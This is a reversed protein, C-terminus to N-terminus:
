DEALLRPDFFVRLSAVRGQKVQYWAVTPVIGAPTTTVLDYVVCVDDGDVFTRQTRAGTVIESLRGVGALYEDAGRAAGLPGVFIMEDHVLARATEMDGQTWAHLCDAAISRNDTEPM